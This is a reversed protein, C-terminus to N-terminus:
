IRRDSSLYIRSLAKMSSYFRWNSSGVLSKYGRIKLKTEVPNNVALFVYCLVYKDTVLVRQSCNLLELQLPSYPSNPPPTPVGFTSLSTSFLSETVASLPKINLPLGNNINIDRDVWPCTMRAFLEWSDRTRCLMLGSSREYM